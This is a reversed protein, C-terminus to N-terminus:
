LNSLESDVDQWIAESLSDSSNSSDSDSPFPIPSTIEIGDLPPEDLINALQDDDIAPASSSSRESRRPRLINSSQTEEKNLANIGRMARNYTPEMSFKLFFVMLKNLNRNTQPTKNWNSNEGLHQQLLMWLQKHNM